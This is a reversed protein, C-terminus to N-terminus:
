CVAIASLVGFVIAGGVACLPGCITGGIIGGILAGAGVCGAPNILTTGEPGEIGCDIRGALGSEGMPDGFATYNAYAQNTVAVLKLILEKESDPM